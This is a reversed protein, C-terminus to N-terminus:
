TCSTLLKGLTGSVTFQPSLESGQHVLGLGVSEVQASVRGLTFTNQTTIMVSGSVSYIPFVSLNRQSWNCLSVLDDEFAGM